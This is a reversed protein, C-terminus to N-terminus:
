IQMCICARAHMRRSIHAQAQMHMCPQVHKGKFCLSHWDVLANAKAHEAFEWVIKTDYLIQARTAKGKTNREEKNLKKKWIVTLFLWSLFQKTHKQTM